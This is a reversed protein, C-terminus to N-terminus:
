ETMYDSATWYSSECAAFHDETFYRETAIIQLKLSSGKHRNGHNEWAVDRM